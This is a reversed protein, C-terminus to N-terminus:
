HETTNFNLNKVFITKMRKEKDEDDQNKGEKNEDDEASSADADNAKAKNKDKMGKFVQPAFELYIPNIYNIKYYALYKM